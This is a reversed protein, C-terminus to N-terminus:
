VVSTEVASDSSKRLRLVIAGSLLIALVLAFEGWVLCHDYFDHGQYRTGMFQYPHNKETFWFRLYYVFLILSVSLWGRNKAFCVLPMAWVWYWPNQTPQLYFFVGIILFLVNVLDEPDGNVFVRYVVWLYFLGFLGVTVVRAVFYAQNGYEKFWEVRKENPVVVYWPAGDKRWDYEVNQYIGSFIADNMRWRTMFAALGDTKDPAAETQSIQVSVPKNAPNLMPWMVLGIGFICAAVFALACKFRGRAFLFMIMAPMFIVPFLKAGVGCALLLGSVLSAIILLMQSGGDRGDKEGLAMGEPFVMGEPLSLGHVRPTLSTSRLNILECAIWVFVAIGAAMFFIAISDLHGGNAIEKLVLPNWAYAMLWAPHKKLLFLMWGIAAITGFDFLVLVFKISYIHTKVSASDPVLATTTRFVAQSVPPYLTTYQEFHVRSVITFASQSEQIAAQLVELEPDDANSRLVADPSYKYPAVGENAAIGDWLYRYFDVELIPNSFVLILRTVVAVLIIVGVLSKSHSKVRLGFFLGLLAVASAFWSLWVVGVIPRNPPQGYEFDQALSFLVETLVILLTGILCVVGWSIKSSPQNM